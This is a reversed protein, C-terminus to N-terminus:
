DVRVPCVSLDESGGHHAGVCVHLSVGVCVSV